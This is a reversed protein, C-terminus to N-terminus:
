GIDSPERKEPGQRFLANCELVWSLAVILTVPTSDLVPATRWLNILENQVIALHRAM